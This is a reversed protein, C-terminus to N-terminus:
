GHLGFFGFVLGSRNYQTNGEITFRKYAGSRTASAVIAQPLQLTRFRKEHFVFEVSKNLTGAPAEYALLDDFRQSAAINVLDQRIGLFALVNPSVQVAIGGAPSDTVRTKNSFFTLHPSFPSTTPYDFPEGNGRLLPVGNLEFPNSLKGLDNVRTALASALQSRPSVIGIWRSLFGMRALLKFRRPERDGDDPEPDVLWCQVLKSDNGDLATVTGYRVAAPYPDQENTPLNALKDKKNHINAKHMSVNSSKKRNEEVASGKTEVQIFTDSQVLCRSDSAQFDFSPLLKKNSPHKKVLLRVWDAETLGHIRSAVALGIAEGVHEMIEGPPQALKSPLRISKGDFDICRDIYSAARTLDRQIQDTSKYGPLGRGMRHFLLYTLFESTPVAVPSAVLKKMAEVAEAPYQLLKAEEKVDYFDVRVLIFPQSIKDIPM